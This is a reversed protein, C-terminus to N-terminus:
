DTLLATIISGIAIGAALPPGIEKIKGFGATTITQENQEVLKVVNISEAWKDVADPNADYARRMADPDKSLDLLVLTETAIKGKRGSIFQEAKDTLRSLFGGGSEEQQQKGPDPTESLIQADSVLNM